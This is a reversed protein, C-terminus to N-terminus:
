RRNRAARARQKETFERTYADLLGRQEIAVARRAERPTKGAALHSELASFYRDTASVAPPPSTAAARANIPQTQRHADNGFLRRSDAMVRVFDERTHGTPIYVTDLM